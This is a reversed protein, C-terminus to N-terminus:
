ANAVMVGILFKGRLSGDSESNVDPSRGRTTVISRPIVAKDGFEHRIARKVDRAAV